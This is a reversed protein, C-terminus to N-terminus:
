AGGCPATGWTPMLRSPRTSSQPFFYHSKFGQNSLVNWELESGLFGVKGLARTAHRIVTSFSYTSGGQPCNRYICTSWAQKRGGGVRLVQPAEPFTRGGTNYFYIGFVVSQLSSLQFLYFKEWVRLFFFFFTFYFVGFPGLVLCEIM